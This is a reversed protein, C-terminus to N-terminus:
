RLDPEEAGAPGELLIDSLTRTLMRELEYEKVPPLVRGAYQIARRLVADANRTPYPPRTTESVSLYLCHLIWLERQYPTMPPLTYM